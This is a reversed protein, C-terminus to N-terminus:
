GVCGRVDCALLIAKFDPRDLALRIAEEIRELPEAFKCDDEVVMVNTHNDRIAHCMATVHSLSCGVAGVTHPVASIRQVKDLPFGVSRFENQTEEWRDTGEVDFCQMIITVDTRM